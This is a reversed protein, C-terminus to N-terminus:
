EDDAGLLENARVEDSVSLQLGAIFERLKITEEIDSLARLEGTIAPCEIHCQRRTCYWKYGYVGNILCRILYYANGNELKEIHTSDVPKNSIIAKLEELTEKDTM